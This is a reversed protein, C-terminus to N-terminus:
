SVKEAMKLVNYMLQILEARTVKAKPNLNGKNDGNVVGNQVCEAIYIKAWDGVSASDNFKSLITNASADTIDPSQTVSKGAIFRMARAVVTMAEERTLVNNPKFTSDSYGAILGYSVSSMVAAFYDDTSVVDFFSSAGSTDKLIGLTKAMIKVMESRKIQESAKITSGTKNDVIIRSALENVAPAAWAPTDSFSHSASIAAYAGDTKTDGTIYLRGGFVESASPVPVIEGSTEIRVLTYATATSPNKAMFRKEAFKSYSIASKAGTESVLEASFSVAGSEVKFSDASAASSLRQKDGAAAEKLSIKVMGGSTIGSIGSLPLYYAADGCSLAIKGNKQAIAQAVDGAVSLEASTAGAPVKVLVTMANASKNIESIAGAGSVTATYANGSNTASAVGDVANDNIYTRVVGGAEGLPGTAIDNSIINGSADKLAGGRIKIQTFYGRVPEALIILLTGEEEDIRVYDDDSLNVFSSGRAIQIKDKLDGISGLNNAVREAFKLTISYFDESLSVSVGENYDSIGGSPTSGSGTSSSSIYDTVIAEEQVLGSYYDAIAGRAIKFRNNSGTLGTKLVITIANSPFIEIDAVGELSEYSGGNRSLYIYEDLNVSSVKKIDNEFYIRVRNSSATYETSVYEPYNEDDEDYNGTYGADLSTTTVASNLVAGTTSAISGGNIRIRNNSGSLAESLSITVTTGSVSVSDRTTLTQYSGGNRSVSIRSRLETATIAPNRQIATTFYIVVRNASSLFASAYAPTVSSAAGSTLNGTEIDETVVNGQTDSISGGDIKMYNRSSTLPNAFKVRIYNTGTTLTDEGGIIEYSNAGGRSIWIHSKLFSTAVASTVGSAYVNRINSTFYITVTSRDASIDTYELEPLGGIKTANIAPTYIEALNVNGNSVSQVKAAAIRFKSRTSTLPEALYIEITGEENNIKIDESPIIENYSTGNRALAIYGNKLSEDTPYGAIAEKFKITVTRGGDALVVSDKDLLEPGSADFTPTKIVETQGEFVDSAITMYNNKTTLSTRLTVYMYEGSFTVTSGSGIVSETGGNKSIRIRNVLNTTKPTVERDFKVTIFARTESLKISVVSPNTNEEAYVGVALVSVLMSVALVFTVARVFLSGLKRMQKSRRRAKIEGARAGCKGAPPLGFKSESKVSVANAVRAIYWIHIYYEFFSSFDIM